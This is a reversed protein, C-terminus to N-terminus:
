TSRNKSHTQALLIKKLLHVLPLPLAAGEAPLPVGGCDNITRLQCNGSTINHTICLEDRRGVLRQRLIYFDTITNQEVITQQFQAYEARTFGIHLAHYHMTTHKSFM